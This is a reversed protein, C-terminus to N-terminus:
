AHEWGENKTCSTLAYKPKKEGLKIIVGRSVLKKVRESIIRRSATGRLRRVRRTIESISLEECGSLVEIIARDIADYAGLTRISEIIRRSAEIAKSAPLSFTITLKLATSIVENSLGLLKLTEEIGELRKLVKRLLEEVERLREDISPM